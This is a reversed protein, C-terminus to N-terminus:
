LGRWVLRGRGHLRKLLTTIHCPQTDDVLCMLLAGRVQSCEALGPCLWMAVGGSSGCGPNVLEDDRKSPRLGEKAGEKWTIRSHPVMQNHLCLKM